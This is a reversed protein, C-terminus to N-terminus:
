QRGGAEEAPAAQPALPHDAEMAAGAAFASRDGRPAPPTPSPRALPHAPHGTRRQKRPDTGAVSGRAAAATAAAEAMESLVAALSEDAAATLEAREALLSDLDSEPLQMLRTAVATCLTSIRGPSGKGLGGVAERMRQTHELVGRVKLQVAGASFTVSSAAPTTLSVVQGPMSKSAVFGPPPATERGRKAGGGKASAQAEATARDAAAAALAAKYQKAALDAKRKEAVLAAKENEMQRKLIVAETEAKRAREETERLQRQMTDFELRHLEEAPLTVTGVQRWGDSGASAAGHESVVARQELKAIAQIAGDLQTSLSNVQAQQQALLAATRARESESADREQRLLDSATAAAQERLALTARLEVTQQRERALEARLADLEPPPPSSAAPAPAPERAAEATAADQTAQLTPTLSAALLLQRLQEQPVAGPRTQVVPATPALGTVAAPQQPLALRLLRWAISSTDARCLSGAHGLHGCRDCAGVAPICSVQQTPQFLCTYRDLPKTVVGAAVLPSAPPKWKRATADDNVHAQRYEVLSRLMAVTAFASHSAEDHAARNLVAQPVEALPLTAFPGGLIEAAKLEALQLAAVLQPLSTTRNVATDNHKSLCCGCLHCVDKIRHHAGARSQPDEPTLIVQAAAGDRRAVEYAQGLGVRCTDGVADMNRVLPSLGHALSAVILIPDTASLTAIWDSAAGRARTGVFRSFTLSMLGEHSVHSAFARVVASNSLNAWLQEYTTMPADSAAAARDSAASLGDAVSLKLAALIDNAHEYSAGAVRVQISSRTGIFSPLGGPILTEFPRGAALSSELTCASLGVSSLKANLSDVSLSDDSPGLVTLTMADFVGDNKVPRLHIPSPNAAFGLSVFTLSAGGPESPAFAKAVARSVDSRLVQQAATARHGLSLRAMADQAFRTDQQKPAATSTGVAASVTAPAPPAAAAAAADPAPAAVTADPTPAATAASGPAPVTAATVDPPPAAAGGAAPAAAAAAAHPSPTVSSLPAATQDAMLLTPDEVTLSFTFTPAVEGDQLEAFFAHHFGVAVAPAPGHAPSVRRNPRVTPNRSAGPNSPASGVGESRHGESSLLRQILALPGSVNLCSIAAWRLNPSSTPALEFAGTASIGGMFLLTADSALLTSAGSRPWQSGTGTALKLNAVVQAAQDRFLPGLYSASYSARPMMDVASSVVLLRISINTSRQTAASAPAPNANSAVRTASNQASRLLSAIASPVLGLSSMPVPLPNQPSIPNNTAM